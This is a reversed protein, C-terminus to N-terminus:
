SIQWTSLVYSAEKAAEHKSKLLVVLSYETFEDLIVLAYKEGNETEPDIPGMLDMHVVELPRACTNNTSKFPSAIQKGSLCADCRGHNGICKSLDGPPLKMGEVMNERRLRELNHSSIHGFRQHWMDVTQLDVQTHCSKVGKTTDHIPAKISLDTLWQYPYLPRALGVFDGNSDTLHCHIGDIHVDIGDYFAKGVSM